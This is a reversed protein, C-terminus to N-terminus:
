ASLVFPEIRSGMASIRDRLETEIEEPPGHRRAKERRSDQSSWHELDFWVVLYVGRSMEYDSDVPGLYRDALQEQIDSYLDSNWAGKVEIVVGLLDSGSEKTPPVKVLVDTRNQVRVESERTFTIGRDQLDQRLHRAILDSLREEKKPFRVTGTIDDANELLPPPADQSQLWDRVVDRQRGYSLENWMDAAAPQEQADLKRQLSSLSEILVRQLEMSTRVVRRSADEVLSHFTAPSIRPTNKERIAQKARRLSWEWNRDGPFQSALERLAEVAEETGRHILVKPLKGRWDRIEERLSPTYPEFKQPPDEEPPFLENLRSYISLLVEEPLTLLNIRRRTMRRLIAKAFSDDSQFEERILTWGFGPDAELIDLLWDDKSGNFHDDTYEALEEATSRAETAGCELLYPTLVIRNAEPSDDKELLRLLLSRLNGEEAIPDLLFSLQRKSYVFRSLLEEIVTQCADPAHHYAASILVSRTEKRKESTHPIYAFFVPCWKKWIESDVSSLDKVDSTALLWFAIFGLTLKPDVVQRGEDNESLWDVEEVEDARLYDQGANLVDARESPSM